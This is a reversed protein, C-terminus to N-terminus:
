TAYLQATDFPGLRERYVTMTPQLRCIYDWPDFDNMKQCNMHGGMKVLSPGTSLAKFTLGYSLMAPNSDISNRTVDITSQCRMNVRRPWRVHLGYLYRDSTRPLELSPPQDEDQELILERFSDQMDRLDGQVIMLQQFILEHVELRGDATPTIACILDIVSAEMSTMAHLTKDVTAHFIRRSESEESGSWCIPQLQLTHPPEVLLCRISDTPDDPTPLEDLWRALHTWTQVLEAEVM